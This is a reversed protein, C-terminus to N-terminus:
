GESVLPLVRWDVRIVGDDFAFDGNLDDALRRAMWLTRCRGSETASVDARGAIQMFMVVAWRKRWIM